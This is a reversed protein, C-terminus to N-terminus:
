FLIKDLGITVRVAKIIDGASTNKPQYLVHAYLPTLFTQKESFKTHKLRNSDRNQCKGKQRIVSPKTNSPLGIFGEPVELKDTVWSISLFM